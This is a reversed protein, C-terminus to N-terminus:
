LYNFLSLQSIQAFTQQSAELALTQQELRSIAEAYDLDALASRNEEMSIKYSDNTSRQNEIANLRAGISTRTNLVADLASDMRTLTSPSGTDSEMDIVFDYIAAFMSDVGGAGDDIKMFVEDGPDGAAIQRSAGIQIHRQGQDGDYSYVGAGVDSFPVTDVSYGAFLYEGNADRANALQLIGDLLTRAEQAIATRDAASNTDNNGQVALERVRQLQDGINSLTAEELGLRTEATDANRQYQDLTDIAQNLELVQTAAAPDDSPSLIRDGTAVQLQTKALELQKNMMATVSQQYIQSTSIRM